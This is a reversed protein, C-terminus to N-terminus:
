RVEANSRDTYRTDVSNYSPVTFLSIMTKAIANATVVPVTAAVLTSQGDCASASPPHPPGLQQRERGPRAVFAM